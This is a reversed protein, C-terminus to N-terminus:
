VLPYGAAKWGEVGGRLAKANSFGLAISKAAEGAAIEEDPSACYFVIEQDWSMSAGHSRFEQLSIAGELQLAQFRLPEAYACVLFAQGNQVKEHAEQPSIRAVGTM